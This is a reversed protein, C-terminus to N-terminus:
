SGGHQAAARYVALHGRAMAEIGFRRARERGRRVLEATLAPDEAVRAMAAAMAVPDAPDFLVGADGVVEPLAAADSSVVATGAAMAEVVPLGFGEYFSPMVLMGAGAYWRALETESVHGAFHVAGGLGRRRAEREAEPYRADAEGVVVLRWADWRAADRERLTAFARVLGAVNKYPDRRGVYLVYPGAAAEARGGGPEGGADAPAETSAASGVGNHVVTVRGEAVGLERILDRKSAQSVTIVAAAQRVQQRCWARWAWAHRAKRSRGLMDRCVLPIVDHVTVVRRLGRGGALRPAPGWAIPSWTDPTHLVLTRREADSASRAAARLRRRGRWLLEAPRGMAGAVEVREIAGGPHGSTPPPPAATGPPTTQRDPPAVWIQIPGPWLEALQHNHDLAELGHVLNQTYRGIGSLARPVPPTPPHTPPAPPTPDPGGAPTGGGRADIVLMAM